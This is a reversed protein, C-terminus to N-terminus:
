AFLFFFFNKKLSPYVAKQEGVPTCCAFEILITILKCGCYAYNLFLCQKESPELDQQHITACLVVIPLEQSGGTRKNSCRVYSSFASLVNKNGSAKYSKYKMGRPQLCM